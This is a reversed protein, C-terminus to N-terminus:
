SRPTPKTLMDLVKNDLHKVKEELVPIQAVFRETTQKLDEVAWALTENKAQGKEQAAKEEALEAMLAALSKAALDQNCPEVGLTMFQEMFVAFCLILLPFHPWELVDNLSSLIQLFDTAMITKERSKEALQTELEQNHALLVKNVEEESVKKLEDEFLQTKTFRKLAVRL